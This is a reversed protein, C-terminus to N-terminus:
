RVKEHLEVVAEIKCNSHDPPVPTPNASMFVIECRSINRARDTYFLHEHETKIESTRKELAEESWIDFDSESGPTPTGSSGIEGKLWKSMHIANEKYGM